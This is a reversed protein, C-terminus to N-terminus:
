RREQELSAFSTLEDLFVCDSARFTNCYTITLASSSITSGM